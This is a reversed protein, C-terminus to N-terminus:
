NSLILWNFNQQKVRTGLSRSSEKSALHLVFRTGVPTSGVTVGPLVLFKPRLDSLGTHALVGVSSCGVESAFDVIVPTQAALRASLAASTM